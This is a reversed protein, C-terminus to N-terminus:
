RRSSISPGSGRRKPRPLPLPRSALVDSDAIIEDHNGTFSLDFGFLIDLYDIEVPSIGLHTVARAPADPTSAPAAEEITAPNVHGAALRKPEVSAWRYVSQSRDEELNLEGNDAKRLRAMAPIREADREFFHLLTERSHPLNLQSGLRLNVYFDDCFANYPDNM